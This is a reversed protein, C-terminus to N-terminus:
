AAGVVWAILTRRYEPDSWASALHDPTIEVVNPRHTPHGVISVEVGDYLIRIEGIPIEDPSTALVSLTFDGAPCVRSADEITAGSLDRFDLSWSRRDRIDLRTLDIDGYQTKM